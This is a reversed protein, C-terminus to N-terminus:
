RPQEMLGVVAAATFERRETVQHTVPVQGAPAKDTWAYSLSHSRFEVLAGSAQVLVEESGSISASTCSEPLMATIEGQTALIAAADVGEFQAALAAADSSFARRVVIMGESTAEINSVAFLPLSGGAPLPQSAASVANAVPTISGETFPGYVEQYGTEDRHRLASANVLKALTGAFKDPLKAAMAADLGEYGAIALLKGNADLHYVLELGALAAHVPSIIADGNRTLSQSTITVRNSFATGAPVAADPAAATPKEGPMPAPVAAVTVFSMRQRVDTVPQGGADSRSHTETEVVQFYAGDAPAYQLDVSQAQLTLLAATLAPTLFIWKRVPKRNM